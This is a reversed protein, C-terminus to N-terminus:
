VNKMRPIKTWFPKGVPNGTLNVKSGNEYAITWMFRPFLLFHVGSCVLQISENYMLNSKQVNKSPNSIQIVSDAPRGQSKWHGLFVTLM